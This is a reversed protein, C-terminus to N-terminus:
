PARGRRSKKIPAAADKSDLVPAVALERSVVSRLRITAVTRGGCQRTHAQYSDRILQLTGAKYQMVDLNEAPRAGAWDLAAQVTAFGDHSGRRHGDAVPKGRVNKIINVQREVRIEAVRKLARPRPEDDGAPRVLYFAGQADKMVDLNEMPTHAAWDLAQDFSSFSDSM